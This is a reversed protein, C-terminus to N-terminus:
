LLELFITYACTNRYRTNAKDKETIYYHEVALMRTRSHSNRFYMAENFDEALLAGVNSATTSVRCKSSQRQASVM